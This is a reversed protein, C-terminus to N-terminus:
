QSHFVFNIKRFKEYYFRDHKIIENLKSKYNDFDEKQMPNTILNLNDSNDLVFKAQFCFYKWVRSHKWTSQIRCITEPVVAM